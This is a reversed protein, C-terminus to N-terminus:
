NDIYLILYELYLSEYKARLAELGQPCLSTALLTSYICLKVSIRGKIELHMKLQLSNIRPSMFLSM